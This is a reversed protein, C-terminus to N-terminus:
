HLALASPELDAWFLMWRGQWAGIMATVKFDHINTKSAVLESLRQVEGMRRSLRRPLHLHRFTSHLPNAVCRM